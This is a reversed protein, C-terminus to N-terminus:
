KFIIQPVGDNVMRLPNNVFRFEPSLGGGGDLSLTTLWRLKM